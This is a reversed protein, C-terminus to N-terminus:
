FFRSVLELRPVQTVFWVKAHIARWSRVRSAGGLPASPALWAKMPIYANTYLSGLPGGHDIRLYLNYVM